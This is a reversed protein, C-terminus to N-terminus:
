LDDDPLHRFLLLIQVFEALSALEYNLVLSM